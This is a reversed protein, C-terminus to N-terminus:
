SLISTFCKDVFRFTTSDKMLQEINIRKKFDEVMQEYHAGASGVTDHWEDERDKMKMEYDRPDQEEELRLVADACRYLDVYHELLPLAERLFASSRDVREELLHWYPNAKSTLTTLSFFTAQYLDCARMQIQTQVWHDVSIKMPRRMPSKFEVIETLANTASSYVELDPTAKLWPYDQDVWIAGERHRNLVEPHRQLYHARVWQEMSAGRKAPYSTKRVYKELQREIQADSFTEFNVKNRLVWSTRRTENFVAAISGDPKDQYESLGLLHAVRSATVGGDSVRAEYWKFPSDRKSISTKPM